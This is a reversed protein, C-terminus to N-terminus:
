GLKMLWQALSNPQGDLLWVAELEIAVNPDVAWLLTDSVIDLVSAAETPDVDDPLCLLIRLQPNAAENARLALRLQALEPESPGREPYLWILPGGPWPTIQTDADLLFVLDRRNESDTLRVVQECSELAKMAPQGTWHYALTRMCAADGGVVGVCDGRKPPRTKRTSM